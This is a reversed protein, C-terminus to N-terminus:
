RWARVIRGHLHPRSALERALAAAGRSGARPLAASRPGAAEDPAPAPRRRLRRDAPQRAARAPRDRGTGLRRGGHGLRGVAMPQRRRRRRRGCNGLPQVPRGESLMRAALVPPTLAIDLGAAAAEIMLFHAEHNTPPDLQPGAYGVNRLWREWIRAPQYIALRPRRPLDDLTRPPPRGGALLPASVVIASLAAIHLAPMGGIGGCGALIAVDAHGRRLDAVTWVRLEISIDPCERTLAPMDPILWALAFSQPVVVRLATGGREAQLDMTARRVADIAPEVTRLYREGTRSLAPTGKELVFRAVGAFAELAQVRRSFASPGLALRDAVERFSTSRSAIIFAAIAELPPAQRRVSREGTGGAARKGEQGDLQCGDAVCTTRAYVHATSMAGDAFGGGFAQIAM